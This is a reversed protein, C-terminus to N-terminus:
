RARVGAFWRILAFLALGLGAALGVHLPVVGGGLAGNGLAVLVGAAAGAALWALVGRRGLAGLLLAGALGFTLSFATLAVLFVAGAHRTVALTGARDPETAGAILFAILTLVGALALPAAILAVALRLWRRPRAPRDPAATESM